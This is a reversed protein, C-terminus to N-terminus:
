QERLLRFDVKLQCDFTLRFDVTSNKFFNADKKPKKCKFSKRSIWSKTRKMSKRTKFPELNVELDSYHSTDIETFEPMMTEKSCLDSGPGCNKHQVEPTTHKSEANKSTCLDSEKDYTDQFKGDEVCISPEDKYNGDTDMGLVTNFDDKVIPDRKYRSITNGNTCLGTETDCNLENLNNPQSMAQEHSCLNTGTDCNTRVNEDSFSDSPQSTSKRYTCLGTGADCNLEVPHNPQATSKGNYTCLGTGADCNVRVIRESVPSNTDLNSKGNRTCLGTTADCNIRVNGTSAHHTPQPKNQSYTCLGTRADCDLKMNPSPKFQDNGYPTCVGTMENCQLQAHSSTTPKPRDYTCLGNTRDCILRVNDGSEDTTATKLKIHIGINSPIESRDHHTWPNVNNDFNAHFQSLKEDHRPTCIKTISNCMYNIPDLSGYGGKMVDDLRYENFHDHHDRGNAYILFFNPYLLALKQNVLKM